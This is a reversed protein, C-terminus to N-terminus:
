RRFAYTTDTLKKLFLVIDGVEKKSLNLKDFPLTQNDPAIGLGKGGGKNYFEVVQTLTSFVGNHMYPATLASNRVTPIKFSHKHLVSRTFAYKGLDTDLVKKGKKISPVGLVESETENFDPPVLGNLLPMFHCTACKAKGTFLNFGNQEAKNLQTSDGRMFLDFPSNFAQLSRVFHAVANSITFQTIPSKEAPYAKQFLATYKKDTSLLQVLNKLSGSMEKENHVVQVFQSELTPARSDYFQKTQFVSNWLTPTNRTLAHGDIGNPVRLGDTFAKKPDHCSNCSQKNNGSLVPDFFLAKGLALRDANLEYRENPSFFRINFFATDFLTGASPNLALNGLKDTLGLEGIVATLNLTLADAYKKIFEIRNLKNFDNNLSLFKKTAAISASLAKANKESVSSRYFSFIKEMGELTAMGEPISNNALPSDFGTIGLTILRFAASRLSALVNEDKFVYIFDPENKMKDLEAIMFSCEKGLATRGEATPSGFIKEEILQYGHPPIIDDPHDEETRPLAPGNLLRTQSINFFESLVALKKYENRSLFFQKKLEPIVANNEAETRLQSLSNQVSAIQELFYQYVEKNHEEKKKHTGLL